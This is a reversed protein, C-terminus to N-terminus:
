LQTLRQRSLRSCCEKKMGKMSKVGKLFNKEPRQPQAGREM